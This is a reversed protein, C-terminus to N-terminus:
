NVYSLHLQDRDAQERKLIAELHRQFFKTMFPKYFDHTRLIQAIVGELDKEVQAYFFALVPYGTEMLANRKERDAQFQEKSRHPGYGDMEVVLRSEPLYIDARYQRGAVLGEVEWMAIDPRAKHLATFIRFQPNGTNLDSAEGGAQSYAKVLRDNVAQAQQNLEKKLSKAQKDDLIGLERAQKINIAM